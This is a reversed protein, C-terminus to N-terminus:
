RLIEKPTAKTVPLLRTGLGLAQIVTKKSQDPKKGGLMFVIVIAM